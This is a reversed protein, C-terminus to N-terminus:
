HSFTGPWSFDWFYLNFITLFHSNTQQMLKDQTNTTGNSVYLQIIHEHHYHPFARDMVM